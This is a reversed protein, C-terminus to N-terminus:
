FLFLEKLKRHEDTLLITQTIIEGNIPNKIEIQFISKSVEIVKEVSWDSKKIELLREIEKYLKYAVFTLCIHAEIRKQKRHYIPRIQLDTKAVRFAKEIRWLHNYNELIQEKPLKANTLYGKLGDWKADQDFKESDIIVNIEGELKLYKNYGRNNISSKTLKGSKISKELKKLGKERNYKDKKARNDSYTVILKLDDKSIVTSEGDKLQLSLIQNKIQKSETKIRAGLIFEYNKAQLGKVNTNSLLGADAVIVLKQLNYKKKFSDIIPLMTHGEFKNGEFMDYALPYGNKSVLLGLVIQPNQHKGEKSFGTKRLADENDIEFYVTTVDYFVVKIDEKLISLTHEYSIKQVTDKQTDYLKDLYRYLEDESYKKQEYRYLYETTKLKSKPYILRYLVLDKFLPDKIKNFGIEDFIKGLVLNSGVLKHSTINNLITAIFSNSDSFDLEQNGCVTNIFEKACLILQEIEKSDQSSGITKLVKYKGSSKDIVQVSILGSKNKKQRIFM